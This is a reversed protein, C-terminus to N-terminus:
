PAVAVWEPILTFSESYKGTLNIIEQSEIDLSYIDYKKGSYGQFIIRKDNPTWMLNQRYSVFLNENGLKAITEQEIDLIVLGIDQYFLTAFKGDSSWVPDSERYEPLSSPPVLRRIGSGDPHILYDRSMAVFHIYEGGPLWRPQPDDFVSIPDPMANLDILERVVSGDLSIVYVKALVESAFPASGVGVVLYQSNPSWSLSRVGDEPLSLPQVDSGDPKMTYLRACGIMHDDIMEAIFDRDPGCTDRGSTFAIYQGDPSWTPMEDAAPNNTLNVINSGDADARYIERNPHNISAVYLVYRSDPSWALSPWDNIVNAELAFVPFDPLERLIGDEVNLLALPDAVPEENDYIANSSDAVLNRRFILTHHKDPTNNAVTACSTLAGCVLLGTLAAELLCKLTRSQAM